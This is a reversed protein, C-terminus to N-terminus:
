PTALNEPARLHIIVIAVGPCFNDVKFFRM